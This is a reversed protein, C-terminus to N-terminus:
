CYNHFSHSFNFPIKRIFIIGKGAKFGSPTPVHSLGPATLGRNQFSLFYLTLISKAIQGNIKKAGRAVTM